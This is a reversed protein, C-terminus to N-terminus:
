LEDFQIHGERYDVQNLFMHTVLSFPRGDNDSLHIIAQDSYGKKHFRICNGHPDTGPRFEIGDVIIGDPLLFAEPEPTEDSIPRPAADKILISGTGEQVCMMLIKGQILAEKKLHVANLRLQNITIDKKDRIFTNTFRPFAFALVFGMLFIVVILELLTFGENAVAQRQTKEYM